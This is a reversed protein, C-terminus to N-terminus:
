ASPTRTPPSTTQGEKWTAADRLATAASKLAELKTKVAKLDTAQPNINSRATSRARRVRASSSCSSTVITSTDVGSALGCLAIGAM